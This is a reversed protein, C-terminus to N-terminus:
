YKYRVGAYFTRGTQDYELQANPNNITVSAPVGATGASNVYKINYIDYLENYQNTLNLGEFVLTMHSTLAYTIQTDVNTTGHKGQAFVSSGPNLLSLYDSRAAVSVRADWKKDAYYITGNWAIPSMGLLNYLGYTNKTGGTLTSTTTLVYNIKSAINTYNALVGFRHFFDPVYDPLFTFPHQFNLEYGNLLGGPTNESTYVVYPTTGDQGSALLSTPYGTDSFPETTAVTQYYSKIDKRFFGASFLGDKDPYWEFNLDLNNSRIPNLYPNGLPASASGITQTSTTISGGPALDSLAPRAMTKAAAFRIYVNELPQISVNFAPLVDDYSRKITEWTASVYGNVTEDTTVNRVGLNGRVPMKFADFDFDAQVYQGGDDEFVSKHNLRSSSNTSNLTFTGYANKCNCTYDFANELANLNMAYFTTGAITVPELYQAINSNVTAVFPDNLPGTSTNAAEDRTTPDTTVRGYEISTYGFKKFSVGAKFVLNDSWIYKGDFKTEGYSNTVIYPRLRILSADGENNTTTAVSSNNPAPSSTTATSSGYSWYCPQNIQCGSQSTGYTFTPHEPNTFDYSYGNVNYSEVTFTTQQKDDQVNRTGAVSAKFSLKDGIKQDWTLDIQAFQTDLDDFRHEARIDMNNFSAKTITNTTPDITYNYISSAPLGQGNRSLGIAELDYETRPSAYNSYVGGLTLTTDPNPRAQFSGSLGLRKEDTIYETYRPIRPHLASNVASSTALNAASGGTTPSCAGTTTAATCDTIFSTGAANGISAFHGVSSATVQTFADEWRTTNPGEEEITAKDYTVALSAGLKGDAWRNSILMSLRPGSTHDLDNYSATAQAGFTFGKFDFPHPTDLDVIAGLSGEDEEATTSKRVTIGNFLESSFVNFDVGRSRNAGGTVDRGGTTAQADFDDIRVLTFDPNLGRVTITRGEGGDRDISVGPIRQISEALNLDPFAAIDSSKIVDVISDEKKKASIASQLSARFGTVVVVTSDNQANGAAAGPAAAPAATQAHAGSALMGAFALSAMSVSKLSVSKLLSRGHRSKSVGRVNASESKM